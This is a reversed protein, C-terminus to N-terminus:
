EENTTPEKDATLNILTPVVFVSGGVSSSIKDRLDTAEDRSKFDGVRVKFYPANYDLYTRYQPFQQMIKAKMDNAEGRKNTSLVQVRFGPQNRIALNNIYIQKRIMIDIRADKVVPPNAAIVPTTNDQAAAVLTAGMLLGLIAFCKIMM